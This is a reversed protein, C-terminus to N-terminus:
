PGSWVGRNAVRHVQAKMPLSRSQRIQGFLNNGTFLNHRESGHLRFDLLLYPVTDIYLSICSVAEKNVQYNTAFRCGHLANLTNVPQTLCIIWLTLSDCQGDQHSGFPYPLLTNKGDVIKMKELTLDWRASRYVPAKLLSSVEQNPDRMSPGCNPFLDLLLM